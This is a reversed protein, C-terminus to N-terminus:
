TLGDYFKDAIEFARRCSSRLEDLETSSDCSEYLPGKFSFLHRSVEKLVEAMNTTSAKRIREAAWKASGSEGVDISSVQIADLTKLVDVIVQEDM